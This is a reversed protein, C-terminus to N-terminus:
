EEDSSDQKNTPSQIVRFYLMCAITEVPNHWIQHIIEIQSNFYKTEAM